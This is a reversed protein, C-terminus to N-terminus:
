NYMMNWGDIFFQMKTEHMKNIENNVNEKDM